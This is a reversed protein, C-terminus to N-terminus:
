YQCILGNRSNEAPPYFMWMGLGGTLELAGGVGNPKSNDIVTASPVYDWPSGDSWVYSGSVKSAGMWCSIPDTSNILSEMLKQIPESTISVLDGTTEVYRCYDRAELWSFSGVTEKAFWKYCKKSNLINRVFRM